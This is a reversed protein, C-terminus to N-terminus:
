SRTLVLYPEAKELQTVGPVRSFLAMMFASCRGPELVDKRRIKGLREFTEWCTKIDGIEVWQTGRDSEIRIRWDAEYSTIKWNSFVTDLAEGSESLRVITLAVDDWTATTPTTAV